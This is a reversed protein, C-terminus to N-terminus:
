RLPVGTVRRRAEGIESTPEDDRTWAFAILEPLDGDPVRGASVADRLVRPRQSSLSMESLVVM